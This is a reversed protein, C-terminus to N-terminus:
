QLASAVHRYRALTYAHRKVACSNHEFHTSLLRSLPPQWFLSFNTVPESVERALGNFIPSIVTALRTRRAGIDPTV